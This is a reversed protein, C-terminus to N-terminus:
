MVCLWDDNVSLSLSESLIQISGLLEQEYHSWNRAAGARAGLKRVGGAGTVETGVGISGYVANVVLSSIQM